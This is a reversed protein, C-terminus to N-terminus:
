YKNRGTTRLLLSVSINNVYELSVNLIIMVSTVLVKTGKAYSTRRATAMVAVPQTCAITILKAIRTAFSKNLVTIAKAVDQQVNM